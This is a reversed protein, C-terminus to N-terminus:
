ADPSQMQLVIRGSTTGEQALHMAAAFDELPFRKAVPPHLKGARYLEFLSQVNAASEEPEYIGFQRIDVGILSAGKLLALNTPLKPIGGGAFGIVLLRGNWALSRFARETAEGGLPDIVVDVPKGGNAAKVDERWTPSRSDVVESAGAKSALARKDESSASGIVRAGLAAAIEIAAYGVAGGAGLVLVSEGARLNARTVLAYYSTAYSVRFISAEDFDMTDPIELAMKAPVIAAEGFAAGFASACVRQGIRAPDVGDGVSEIVGSIESGPTFPVEPKIQYNGGAVLVDAFSVGAARVSIRVQDAGPEGPDHQEISFTSPDGLERAIVSRTLARTATSAM